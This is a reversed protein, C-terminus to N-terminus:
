FLPQCCPVHKSQLPPHALPVSCRSRGFGRLSVASTLPVKPCNATTPPSLLCDVPPGQRPYTAPSPQLTTLQQGSGLHSYRANSKAECGPGVSPMRPVVGARIVRACPSHSMFASPPSPQIADSSELDSAACGIRLVLLPLARSSPPGPRHSTKEGTLLKDSCSTPCASPSRAVLQSRTAEQGRHWQAGQGGFITRLRSLIAVRALM